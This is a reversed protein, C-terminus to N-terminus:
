RPAFGRERLAAQLATVASVILRAERDDAALQDADSWSFRKAMEALAEAQDAPLTLTIEVDQM